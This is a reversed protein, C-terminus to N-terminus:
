ENVFSTVEFSEYSLNVGQRGLRLVSQQLLFNVSHCTEETGNDFLQILNLLEMGCNRTKKFPKLARILLHVSSDFKSLCLKYLKVMKNACKSATFNSLRDQCLVQILTNVVLRSNFMKLALEFQGDFVIRLQNKLVLLKQFLIFSHGCFNLRQFDTQAFHLKQCRDKVFFGM